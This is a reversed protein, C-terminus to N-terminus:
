QLSHLFALEEIAAGYAAEPDDEDIAVVYKDYPTNQCLDYGTAMAVPCNLCGDAGYVLCFGCTFRGGCKLLDDPCEEYFAVVQEWKAISLALAEAKSVTSKNLFLGAIGYGNREIEFLQTM